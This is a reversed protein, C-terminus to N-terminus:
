FCFLSVYSYTSGSDFLNSTLRYWMPVMGTIVVDSSEAKARDPVIYCVRHGGSAQSGTHTGGRVTGRGGRTGVSM